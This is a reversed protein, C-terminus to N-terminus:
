RVIVGGDGLKAAWGLWAVIVSFGLDRGLTLTSPFTEMTLKNNNLNLIELKSLKLVVQPFTSFNNGQLELHRLNKALLDFEIPLDTLKNKSLDLHELREFHHWKPIQV